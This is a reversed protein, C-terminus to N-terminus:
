KYRFSSSLYTISKDGYIDKIKDMVDCICSNKKECLEEFIEVQAVGKFERLHSVTIGVLRIARAKQLNDDLLKVAQQFIALDSRVYDTLTRERSFTSFDSYRFKLKIRKTEYGSKRMRRGVRESLVRLNARIVDISDTDNPLTTEHGISKEHPQHYYPTVISDGRGHAIEHLAAGHVGFIKRLAYVDYMALQGITLIGLQSLANQTAPGIGWVTEVPLNELFAGVTGPEVLTLGNPKDMGSAMKALIKNHAIGASATLGTRSEIMMQMEKVMSAPTGYREWIGTIDVFAEDISFPELIPSFERLINLVDISIYTYKSGSTELFIGVPCRRFAEATPMASKIGFVRAEYSCTSVVGRYGPLGGIIVPQGKLQPCHQQEIAAFFADMDLHVIVKHGSWKHRNKGITQTDVKRISWPRKKEEASDKASEDRILHTLERGKGFVGPAAIKKSEAPMTTRSM